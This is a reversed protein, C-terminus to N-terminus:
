NDPRAQWGEPAPEDYFVSMYSQVRQQFAIYVPPDDPPSTGGFPVRFGTVLAKGFIPQQPAANASFSNGQCDGTDKSGLDLAREYRYHIPAKGEHGCFWHSGFREHDFSSRLKTSSALTAPHWTLEGIITVYDPRSLNWFQFAKDGAWLLDDTRFGIVLVSGCATSQTPLGMKCTFFGEYPFTEHFPDSTPIPSLIFLAGSEGLAELTVRKVGSDYGLKAASVTVTGPALNGFRFKGAEDTTATLNYELIGVLTGPLPQQQDDLVSGALTAADERVDGPSEVDSGPRQAGDLNSATGEEVCGALLLTLAALFPSNRGMLLM